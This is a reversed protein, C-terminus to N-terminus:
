MGKGQDAVRGKITNRVAEPLRALRLNSDITHSVYRRIDPQVMAEEISIRGWTIPATMTEQIDPQNRSTVLLHVHHLDLATVM